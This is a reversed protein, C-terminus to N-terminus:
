KVEVSIEKLSSESTGSSNESIRPKRPPVIFRPFTPSVPVGKAEGKFMDISILSVPNFSSIEEIRAEWILRSPMEVMFEEPYSAPLAVPLVSEITLLALIGVTSLSTESNELQYFESVHSPIKIVLIEKKRSLPVEERLFTKRDWEEVNQPSIGITSCSLAYVYVKEKWLADEVMNKPIEIVDKLKSIYRSPYARKLLVGRKLYHKVKVKGQSVLRNVSGDVKGNTWNLRESIERVSSGPRNEVEELVIDDTVMGRSRM